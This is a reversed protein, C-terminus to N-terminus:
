FVMQLILLTVVTLTEWSNATYNTVNTPLIFPVVPVKGKSYGVGDNAPFTASIQYAATGTRTADVFIWDKSAQGNSVGNNDYNWAQMFEPIALTARQKLQSLDGASVVGDLNVDLAMVQYVSPASLTNILLTKGIVADAANILLQVSNLNNIDRSIQISTGNTLNHTFQGSTNPQVATSSVTSGTVGNINTIL